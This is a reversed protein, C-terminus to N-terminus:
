DCITKEIYKEVFARSNMVEIKGQYFKIDNSIILTAKSNIASVYQLNDELDNNDIALAENVSSNSADQIDFVSNVFRLFNRVDRVQKQAVYDINLLTIDLIVGTFMKKEVANFILLAEKYAERKLILDLFVNTDVFVKM